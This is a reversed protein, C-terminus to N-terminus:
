FVFRLPHLTGTQTSASAGGRPAVLYLIVGAAIAAGGVAFLITSATAAGRADSTLDAGRQDCTAADCHNTEADDHLSAARLGFFSGVGVAVIGAAGVAVGAIRQTTGGSAPAAEVAPPPIIPPAVPSPPPPKTEVPATELEPIAVKLTQRVALEFSTTWAVRGPAKAEIKHQGADLPLTSGLVKDGLTEGDCQITLGQPPSTTELVVFSLDKALAKARGAAFASRRKQGERAAIAEADKYTAWASAIKGNKEYCEGLNLLTGVGPDLRQSEALKPCAENYNKQAMLARGDEFLKEALAADAASPQAHLAPAFASGGVLTVVFALRALFLRRM